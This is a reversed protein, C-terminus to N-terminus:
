TGTGNADLALQDQAVFFPEDLVRQMDKEEDTRKDQAAKGKKGARAVEKPQPM